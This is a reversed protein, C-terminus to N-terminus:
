AYWKDVDNWAKVTEEFGLSQLLELLIGDANIHDAEQDNSHCERKIREAAETDTM